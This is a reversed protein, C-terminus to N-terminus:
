PYTFKLHISIGDTKLEPDLNLKNEGAVSVYFDSGDRVIKVDDIENPLVLVRNASSLPLGRWDVHFSTCFGVTAGSGQDAITLNKLGLNYTSKAEYEPGFADGLTRGLIAYGLCFAAVTIVFPVVKNKVLKKM